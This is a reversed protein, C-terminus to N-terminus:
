QWQGKLFQELIIGVKWSFSLSIYISELLVEPKNDEGMSGDSGDAPGGMMREIEEREQRRRMMVCIACQCGEKHKKLRHYLNM